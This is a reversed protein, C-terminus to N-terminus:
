VKQLAPLPKDFFRADVVRVGDPPRFGDVFGFWYVVIGSGFIETYPVLQKRLNRRIEVSDGYIAKSEFWYVDQGHIRLPHKLLCDPTKPYQGKLEPETRYEILQADLWAHLREEGVRGREHQVDNGQPSYVIDEALVEPIERRLRKDQIHEPGRIAIWVAKKSMGTETLVMLTILVPPFDYRRAIKVLPMGGKWNWTMQAINRKVQYYRKTADRVIRQTYIILLLEEELRLERALRKIDSPTRLRNSLARYDEDNM